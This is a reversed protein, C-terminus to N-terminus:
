APGSPGLLQYVEGSNGLNKLPVVGANAVRFLQNIRRATEEGVLIQGGDAHDSLRAALVTVAGSATFTWRDRETGRMKTSGLYVEGSSVGINVQIPFVDSREVRSAKLCHQQIELAAHCANRAHQIPGSDLFIAMMGDGATENIDGGNKHILDFFRSFYLEIVRNIREQPYKQLLTTFGEIDLFLVTADQVYKDLLANEPDKEIINKATEPVFNGLVSKIKHLREISLHALEYRGVVGFFIITLIGFLLFAIAVGITQNVMDQHHNRFVSTDLTVLFWRPEPLPKMHGEFTAHHRRHEENTVVRKAEYSILLVGDREKIIRGDKLAAPDIENLPDSAGPVSGQALLKGEQDLIALYLIFESKLALDILSQYDEAGMHAMMGHGFRLTNVLFNKNDELIFRVFKKDERIVKSSIITLIIALITGSFIMLWVSLRYGSKMKM